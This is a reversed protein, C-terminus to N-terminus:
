SRLYHLCQMRIMQIEKFPDSNLISKCKRLEVEYKVKDAHNVTLWPMFQKWVFRMLAECIYKHIRVVKGEM